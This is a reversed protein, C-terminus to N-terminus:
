SAQGPKVHFLKKFISKTEKDQFENFKETFESRVERQREYLVSILGGSSVISERHKEDSPDLKDVFAKLSERQVSLDNFEGLNDQLIKLHKVLSKIEEAPYLSSFFEIMYRLKKCEIRLKHLEADPTADTIRSGDRVIRKYKKKIIRGALETVPVASNPTSSVDGTESLFKDWSEIVDKYEKSKIFKVIDRHAKKRQEVFISFMQELGPSLEEPLMARYRDKDLLYIDLDRLLNTAKGLRSFREKFHETDQEPFVGKIQSLASRTRRVAVRFDHLFEIDIDKLIGEENLKITRLLTTMIIKLAELSSLEPTLSIKLKSSFDKPNKGISILLTKLYDGESEKLRLGTLYSKFESLEKGYGRLPKLCIHTIKGGSDGGAKIEEITLNIVTKEDENLIRVPTSTKEVEIIPLLARVDIRKKLENKLSCSPLEWWFHPDKKGESPLEAIPKNFHSNHLIFSNSDCLLYVGDGCLRFDFTDLYRKKQKVSKEFIATFENSIRSSLDKKEIVDGLEYYETKEM